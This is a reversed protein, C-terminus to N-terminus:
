KKKGGAKKKNKRFNSKTRQGRVPLKAAHRSGKYSKIKRLRKVDFEQKLTLDPGYLHADKGTAFDKQRNLLFSPLTTDSMFSEINQMESETLKAIQKNPDIDLVKSIASAFAWSIGKIKTLGVVVTKDGRIDKGLIRVLEVTDQKKQMHPNKKEEM